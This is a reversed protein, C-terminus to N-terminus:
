ALDEATIGSSTEVVAFIGNSIRNELTEEKVAEGSVSQDAQGQVDEDTKSSAVYGQQRKKREEEWRVYLDSRDLLQDCEGDSLTWNVKGKSGRIKSTRIELEQDRSQLLSLLEHPSIAMKQQKEVNPDGNQFRGKRIVMKELRRKAAAREVIKQDITNATIFRYVIVPNKQGMRHARDQAQLDCQPNWDSDYIIVTDATMLNLGLGGARTSLLFVFREPDTNFSHIHEQRDEMKMSGDLRSHDFGRFDLYDAIIDLMQTMQSFILVKHGKKKLQVLMQDLIMMKGCVNVVRETPKAMESQEYNILFPHNCVKRLLMMINRTQLRVHNGTKPAPAQIVTKKRERESTMRSVQEYWDDTAETEGDGEEDSSEDAYVKRTKGEDKMLSMSKSQRSGSDFFAYNIDKRSKRRSGGRLREGNAGNSDDDDVDNVDNAPTHKHDLDEFLGDVDGTDNQSDILSKISNDVASKYYDEQDKTM